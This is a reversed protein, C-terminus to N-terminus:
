APTLPAFHRAEEERLREFWGRLEHRRGRDHALNVLEHPDEHLDYLEHDHDEFAADVDFQKPTRWPKGIQTTSGGVGYYRAYKYRGDFLGRIAYRLHICSEYWASDQAFLVHDRVHTSPDALVPSLDVGAISPTENVGAMAAITKALDVHSTLAATSTGPRTVGPVKVYLPVRM